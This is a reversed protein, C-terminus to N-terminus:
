CTKGAFTKEFTAYPTLGLKLRRADLSDPDEIPLPKYVGDQCSIQSGYPQPRGEHVALRDSLLAYHSGNAEGLAAFRGVVPTFRRWLDIGGHLVVLYAATEGDAGYRSIAFWGEPPLIKLLQAANDDDFPTIEDGIAVKAALKQDPPIKAFNIRAVAEWASQDRQGLRHLVERDNAPPPLRAQLAEVAQIAGHVPAIAARVDASLPAPAAAADASPPPGVVQAVCPAIPMLALSAALAFSRTPVM